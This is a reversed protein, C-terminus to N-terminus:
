FLLFFCIFALTARAVRTLKIEMEKSTGSTMSGEIINQKGSRAAQIM